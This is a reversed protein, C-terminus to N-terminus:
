WASTSTCDPWSLVPALATVTIVTGAPLPVFMANPQSLPMWPRGGADNRTAM